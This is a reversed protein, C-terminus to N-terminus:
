GDLPSMLDLAELCIPDKESFDCDFEVTAGAGTFAPNVPPLKQRM